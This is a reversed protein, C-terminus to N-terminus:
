KEEGGQAFLSRLGERYTPYSPDFGLERRIRENSVRLSRGSPASPDVVPPPGGAGEAIARYFDAQRVPENDVANYVANAPRRDLVALIARAMDSVHILSLFNRGDGDIRLAGSRADAILSETTGTGPGYFAGGRLIAWGFRTEDRVREEMSEASRLREPLPRLFSTTEDAVAEGRDGYLFAISQQIYYEAGVSRAAALLNETGETRIRDNMRWAEPDDPNKPIATALHLFVSCGSAADFLSELDLLDGTRREIGREEIWRSSAVNRVLAVTQRGSAALMPLLNRGLVGTAGAVFIRM